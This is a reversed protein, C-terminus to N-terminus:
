SWCRTGRDKPQVIKFVHFVLGRAVMQFTDIYQVNDHEIPHGTGVISIQIKENPLDTNVLAWLCVINNQMQVSLLKASKAGPMVVTQRNTITLQYKYVTKM